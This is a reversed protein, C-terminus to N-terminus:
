EEDEEDEDESCGEAGIIKAIALLGVEDDGDDSGDSQAPQNNDSGPLPPINDSFSTDHGIEEALALLLARNLYRGRTAWFSKGLQSKLKKAPDNRYDHRWAMKLQAVVYLFYLYRARPRNDNKFSLKQGDLDRITIDKPTDSSNQPIIVTNLSDADDDIVRWRYNKPDEEEWKAVQESSPDDPLDPVIAIAGDDLASEVDRELLLGSRATMLEGEVDEGFLAVLVDPGLKHPFLHAATISSVILDYGTATDHILRIVKPKNTQMIAAGYYQLLDNKFKAQSSRTRPGM